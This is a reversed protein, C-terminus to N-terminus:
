IIDVPCDVLRAEAGSCGLNELVFPVRVEPPIFEASTAPIMSNLAFGGTSFSLQRCAVAADEDDFGVNCVAGFDGDHFVQLAGATFGNTIVQSVLRLGWPPDEATSLARRVQARVIGFGM